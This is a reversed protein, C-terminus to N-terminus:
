LAKLSNRTMMRSDSQIVTAYPGAKLAPNTEPDVPASVLLWPPVFLRMKELDENAKDIQKRQDSTLELAISLRGMMEQLTLWVAMWKAEPPVSNETSSLQNRPNSGIFQRIRTVVDPMIQNFVTSGGAGDDQSDNIAATKIADVQPGAMRSYLDSEAIVVWAVTGTTGTM